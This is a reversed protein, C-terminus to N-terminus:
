NKNFDTPTSSENNIDTSMTGEKIGFVFLATILSVINFWWINPQINLIIFPFGFVCGNIVYFIIYIVLNGLFDIFVISFLIIFKLLFCISGVKIKTTLDAKIKSLFGIYNDELTSPEDYTPIDLNQQSLFVFSSRFSKIALYTLLGFFSYFPIWVPLPLNLLFNIM